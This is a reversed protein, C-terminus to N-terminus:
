PVEYSDARVEDMLNQAHIWIDIMEHCGDYDPCIRPSCVGEWPGRPCEWPELRCVYLNHGMGGLRRELGKVKIFAWLLGKAISQKLNM